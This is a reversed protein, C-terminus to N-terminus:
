KKSSLHLPKVFKIYGLILAVILGVTVVFFRFLSDEAGFGRVISYLLTLVGGLVMGDSIITTKYLVVLGIALILLSAALSIISVNRSYLKM